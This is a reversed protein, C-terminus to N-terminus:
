RVTGLALATVGIGATVVIAVAIWLVLFSPGSIVLPMRVPARGRARERLAQERYILKM